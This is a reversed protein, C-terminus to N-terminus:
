RHMFSTSSAAFGMNGVVFFSSGGVFVLVERFWHGQMSAGPIAVINITAKAEGARTAHVGRVARM